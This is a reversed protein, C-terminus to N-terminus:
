WQNESMLTKQPKTTTKNKQIKKEKHQFQMQNSVMGAKLNTQNRQQNQCDYFNPSPIKNKSQQSETKM